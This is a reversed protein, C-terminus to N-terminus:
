PLSNALRYRTVRLSVEGTKDYEAAKPAIEERAFKKVVEQLVVLFPTLLGTTNSYCFLTPLISCPVELTISSNISTCRTHKRSM